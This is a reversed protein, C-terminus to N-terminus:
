KVKRILFSPQVHCGCVGGHQLAASGSYDTAGCESFAGLPLGLLLLAQIYKPKMMRRM